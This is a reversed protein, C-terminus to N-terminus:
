NKSGSAAGSGDAPGSGGSAGSPGPPGPSGSPGPAGSAGAAGPAGSAGRPGPAGAPGPPGSVPVPVTTTPQVVTTTTPPNDNGCGVGGLVLGCLAATLALAQPWRSVRIREPSSGTLFNMCTRGSSLLRADIGRCRSPVNQGKRGEVLGRQQGRVGTSRALSVATTLTLCCSDCPKV